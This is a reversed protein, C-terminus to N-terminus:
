SLIDSTTGFRDQARIIYALERGPAKRETELLEARAELLKFPAEAIDKLRFKAVNELLAATGVVVTRLSGFKYKMGAGKMHARYEDM